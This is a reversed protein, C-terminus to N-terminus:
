INLEDHDLDGVDTLRTNLILVLHPVVIGLGASHM